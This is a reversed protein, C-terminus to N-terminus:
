AKEKAVERSVAVRRARRAKKEAATLLRASTERCKRALLWARFRCRRQQLVLLRSQMVLLRFLPEDSVQGHEAEIERWRRALQRSAAGQDLAAGIECAMRHLEFLSAYYPPLAHSAVSNLRRGAASINGALVEASAGLLRLADAAPSLPLHSAQDVVTRAEEIRQLSLLSLALPALHVAEVDPRSSWDGLWDIAADWLGNLQLASGVAAWTKTTQELEAKRGAVFPILKDIAEANGLVELYAVVAGTWHPSGPELLACLKEIDSVRAERALVEVLVGVAEPKAQHQDIQERVTQKVQEAWGKLLMSDVAVQLLQEDDATRCCATALAALAEKPRDSLAHLKAEHTALEHDSLHPRIIRLTAFADDYQSAETELRLLTRGGYLYSGDLEISRKLHTKADEVRGQNLLCDAVYGWSAPAYPAVALLQQAADLAEEAKGDVELWAALLSWAYAYHPDEQVVRRVLKIAQERNGRQYEITAAQAQLQLPQRDGFIEPRCAALAEEFQGHRALMHANREHADVSRPDIALARQLAAQWAQSHEPFRELIDARQLWVALSEPRSDTVREAMEVLLTPQNVVYAWTALRTWGWDYAPDLEIAEQLTTLAVDRQGQRWYCDALAGRHTVNRPESHCARKLLEEERPLNGTRAYADALSRLTEGHRSNIALARKLAKREQEPENREFYVTALDIWVAPLLPFQAVCRKAEALADDLRKMATLQRILALSSQWLDPRAERVEEAFALADDAEFAQAAFGRFLLITEGQIVQRKMESIVAEAAERREQQTDCQRILEFLAAAYDVSIALASVFHQRARSEDGEERAIMGRLLEQQMAGPDYREAREVAEVAESWRRVEVLKFALERWCWADEPHLHLHAEAAEIARAPDSGGSTEVLLARLELNRPFREVYSALHEVAADVGRWDALVEVVHRHTALDLPSRQLSADLHEYAVELNGRQQALQAAIAFWDAAHCKNQAAELQRQAEDLRGIRICFQCAFLRLDGDDPRREIADSLVGRAEETRLLLDLASVLSRTPGSDQQGLRQHRDRLLQLAEDTRRLAAAAHFYTMSRGEDRADLCAASRYWQLASDRRKEIWERRGRLGYTHPDLPRARIARRLLYDVQRSERPDVLLEEVLQFRYITECDTRQCLKTLLDLRDSRTGLQQLIRLKVSWQNQDDPFMEILRDTLKGLRRLDGDYAAIRAEAHLTLRHDPAGDQMPALAATAEDRRHHSLASQLRHSQTWLEHDPLPLAEVRHREAEPVFVMARPGTSRQQRLLDEGLVEGAHRVSPDRVILVGSRSDYGIVAQMHGQLFGTLTQTFPLGEDILLVASDWTLTFERCYFGHAELWTREAHAPTGDYCIEEAIELHDAAADWYRALTSLTAPVCTQEQQLTFGVDLIVRRGTDRGTSVNEAFKEFFPGGSKRALRIAEDFDELHYALTAALGHVERRMQRDKELLPLLPVALRVQHQAEEFLSLERLLQALQLRIAGCELRDSAETLLDRAEDVQDLQILEAALAQVGPRYCPQVDISRRYSEIAELNRDELRLAHGQIVHLWARDPTAELGRKLAAEARPFDKLLAYLYAEAAAIDAIASQSLHGGDEQQLFALAALPGRREALPLAVYYALAETDQWQRWARLHIASGHRPAGLNTALRGALARGSPGDLADMGGRELLKQYAQLYLGADYLTLLEDELLSTAHDQSDHHMSLLKGSSLCIPSSDNLM